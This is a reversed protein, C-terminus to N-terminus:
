WRKGLIIVVVALLIPALANLVVTSEKSEVVGFVPAYGAHPPAL